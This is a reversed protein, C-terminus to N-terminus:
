AAAALAALIGIAMHMGTGSDGISPWVYTPPGDPVGTVCMAGGMAQAIPEFSKFDSYPGYTGFGKITAYILRPNIASLAEYGVGLRDLAGPGFNEVLVDSNAIM